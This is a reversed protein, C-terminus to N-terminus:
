VMPPKVQAALERWRQAYARFSESGKKQMRQLEFRDPAMETNFKYQSLFSTALNSWTRIRSHDLQVFWRQAPGTLSKKSNSSSYDKMIATYVCKEVISKWIPLLVAQEMM